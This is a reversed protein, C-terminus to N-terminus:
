LRDDLATYSRDFTLGTGPAALSLEGDEEVSGAESVVSAGRSPRMLARFKQAFMRATVASGAGLTVLALWVTAVEMTILIALALLAVLTASEWVNDSPSRNPKIMLQLVQFCACLLALAGARAPDNEPVAVVVAILSARFVVQLNGWWFAGDRFPAYIVGWWRQVSPDALMSREHLSWLKFTLWAPVLLAYLLLLVVALPVVARHADSDCRIAPLAAMYSGDPLTTCSFVEISTRAVANLTFFYLAVATRCYPAVAFRRPTWPPRLRRQQMLRLGAHIAATLLLFGFTLLPGLLLLLLMQEPAIPFPCAAGGAALFNLDLFAAWRLWEARGVILLAV